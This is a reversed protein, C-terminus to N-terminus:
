KASKKPKPLIQIRETGILVNRIAELEERAYVGGLALACNEFVILNIIQGNYKIKLTDIEQEDKFFTLRQYLENVAKKFDSQDIDLSNNAIVVNLEKKKELM